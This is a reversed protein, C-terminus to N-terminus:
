ELTVLRWEEPRRFLHEPHRVARVVQVSAAAYREIRWLFIAFADEHLIEHVSRFGAALALPDLTRSLGHLEEALGLHLYGSINSGGPGRGDPDLFRSVDLDEGLPLRYYLLDFDRRGALDRLASEGALPVLDVRFGIEEIGRAIAKCAAAVGPDAAVYALRLVIEEGERMWRVPPGPELSYGKEALVERVLERGYGPEYRYPTVDPNEMWSGPPAFGTALTRRPLTEGKAEGLRAVLAEERPVARCLARRVKGAGLLPHRHNFLVLEVDRVGYPWLRFRDPQGAIWAVRAAPVEPLVHAEGAVLADFAAEAGAYRRFVVGYVLPRDPVPYRLNKYLALEDGKREGPRYPGAVVPNALYPNARSLFEEGVVHRPLVPFRFLFLPRLARRSLTFRVRLSDLVEVRELHRALALDRGETRRDVALHASFQVDRATLPSGDSWLLGERLVFTYELDDLSVQVDAALSLVPREAEDLDVLSSFLLRSARSEVASAGPTPDFLAPLETEASVLLLLNEQCRRRFDRVEALWGAVAAAREAVALAEPYRESDSLARGEELIALADKEKRGRLALVAEEAERLEGAIERDIPLLRSAKKLHELGEEVRGAETAQRGLSLHTRGLKGGALDSWRSSVGRHRDLVQQYEALAEELKGERVLRDGREILLDDLDLIRDIANKAVYPGGRDRLILVADGKDIVEGILREGSKTIVISQGRRAFEYLVAEVERGAAARWPSGQDVNSELSEFYRLALDLAGRGLAARGEDLYVEERSKTRAIRRRPVEVITGQPEVRIKLADETESVVRGRLFDGEVMYFVDQYPVLAVEESAAPVALAALLALAGLHTWRM